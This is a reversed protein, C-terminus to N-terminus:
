TCVDKNVSERGAWLALLQRVEPEATNMVQLQENQGLCHKGLHRLLIVDGGLAKKWQARRLEAKGRLRADEIQRRYRRNLTDESVGVMAGLELLTCQAKSYEALKEEDPRLM